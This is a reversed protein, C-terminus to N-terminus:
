THGLLRMREEAAATRELELESRLRRVNEFEELVSQKEQVDVGQASEFHKIQDRIAKAKLGLQRIRKLVEEERHTLVTSKEHCGYVKGSEDAEIVSTECCGCDDFGLIPLHHKSEVSVVEM